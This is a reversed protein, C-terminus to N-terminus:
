YTIYTYFIITIFHSKCLISQKKVMTEFSSNVEEPLLNKGKLTAEIKSAIRPM